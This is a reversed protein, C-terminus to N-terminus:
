YLGFGVRNEHPRPIGKKPLCTEPKWQNIYRTPHPHSCPLNLRPPATPGPKDDGAAEPEKQVSIACVVVGWQWEGQLAVLPRRYREAKRSVNFVGAAERRRPKFGGAAATRNQEVRPPRGGQGAQAACGGPGSAGHRKSSDVLLEAGGGDERRGRKKGPRAWETGHRGATAVVEGRSGGRRWRQEERTPSSGVADMRPRRRWGGHRRRERMRVTSDDRRSGRESRSGAAWEPEGGSAPVRRVGHATPNAALGGGEGQSISKLLRSFGVHPTPTNSFLISQSFERHPPQAQTASDRIRMYPGIGTPFEDSCIVLAVVRTCHSAGPQTILTPEAAAAATPTEEDADDTTNEPQGSSCGLAAALITSSPRWRCKECAPRRM